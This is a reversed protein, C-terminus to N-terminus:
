SRPGRWCRDGLRSFSEGAYDTAPQYHPVFRSPHLYHAPSDPDLSTSAYAADRVSEWPETTAAEPSPERHIEGVDQDVGDVHPAGGSHDDLHGQKPLFM